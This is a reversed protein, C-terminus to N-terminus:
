RKEYVTLTWTCDITNSSLYYTGSDLYFKASDKKKTTGLMDFTDGEITWDGIAMDFMSPLYKVAMDIRQEGGELKFKKSNRIFNGESGGKWTFVKVWKGEDDGGSSGEDTTEASCGAVALLCVLLLIPLTRRM